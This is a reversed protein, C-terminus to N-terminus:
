TGARAGGEARGAWRCTITDVQNAALTGLSFVLDGSTNGPDIAPQERVRLWVRAGPWMSSDEAALRECCREFLPGSQYEHCRHHVRACGWKRRRDIRPRSLRSPRVVLTVPVTNQATNCTSNNSGGCRRCHANVIPSACESRYRRCDDGASLQPEPLSRTAAPVAWRPSRSNWGFGSIGTASLGTPLPDSLTILGSTPANGTNMVTLM